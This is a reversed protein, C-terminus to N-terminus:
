AATGVKSPCKDQNELQLYTAPRAAPAARETLKPVSYRLRAAQMQALGVPAMQRPGYSTQKQLPATPALSCTAVEGSPCRGPPSRLCRCRSSGLGLAKSRGRCLSAPGCCAGAAAPRLTRSAYALAKTHRAFRLDAKKPACAASQLELRRSEVELRLQPSAQGPLKWRGQRAQQLASAEGPAM